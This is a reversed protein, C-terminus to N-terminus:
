KIADEIHESISKHTFLQSGLDVAGYILGFVPFAISLGGTVLDIYNHAQFGNPNSFGDVLTLAINAGGIGFRSINGVVKGYGLFAKASNFSKVGAAPASM